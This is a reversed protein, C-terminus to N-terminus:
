EEYFESTTKKTQILCAVMFWTIIGGRMFIVRGMVTIVGDRMFIVMGLVAVIISDRM